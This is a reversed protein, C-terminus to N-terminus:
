RWGRPAQNLREPWRRWSASRTTARRTAGLAKAKDVCAAVFAPSGAVFVSHGSLDGFLAPLVAPIRGFLEGDHEQTFTAVFRFNRYRREWYRLLGEDYVDEGRPASFLLTVPLAYGRRLAADALALIPAMGSGAAMCLVPTEVSPDGVFTGYAGSVKVADGPQLREHVWRSTVGGDVRTVQVAIEGDPRPAAALSYSRAPVKGEDDGIMVYQGPWYRMPEGLPRLVVEVIRPTRAIKDVVVFPMHERPPFLKPKADSEGWEIVMEDSLPKAMCMLGFGDAREAQSLAMDLVIGQNFEGSRVKVKCEGCAGARCNNPLAYGAAELASLM